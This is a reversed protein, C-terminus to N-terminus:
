SRIKVIGLADALLTLHLEVPCTEWITFSQDSSAGFKALWDACHNGERYTHEFTLDWTFDLFKRICKVLPAHPHFPTVDHLVMTIASQSDSDCVLARYGREWALKLGHFMALLEANLNTSYGCSGSYGIIWQGLADRILGGFGSNGPNGFSSGDVNLKCFDTPPPRWIVSKIMRTPSHAVFAHLIDEHLTHVQNITYWNTWEMDNFIAANRSKWIIWCAAAFLSGQTGEM